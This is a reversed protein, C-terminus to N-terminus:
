PRPLGFLVPLDAIDTRARRNKGALGILQDALDTEDVAAQYLDFGARRLQRRQGTATPPLEIQYAWQGHDPNWSRNTRRLKPCTNGLPKRTTSDRCGCRDVARTAPPPFGSLRAGDATRSRLIRDLEIRM